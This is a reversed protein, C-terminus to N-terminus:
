SLMLSYQGLDEQYLTYITMLKSLIETKFLFREYVTHLEKYLRSIPLSRESDKWLIPQTREFKSYIDM